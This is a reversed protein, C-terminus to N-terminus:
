GAAPPVSGALGFQRALFDTQATKAQNAVLGFGNHESPAGTRPWTTLTLWEPPAAHAQYRARLAEFFTSICALPVIQDAESHLALLPVPRWTELHEIPDIRNLQALAHAPPTRHGSYLMHLNGATCEVAACRFPHPDCLRRLAIMGGASMGGIALRELDFVDLLEPAALAEIVQDIEPLALELLDLVAAPDQLRPDSREGHGPLDIACAAFGARIWRLYRGNDLEKSVTRGHMWIVTPVPTSWDPHALLAPVGAPGLRAFRTQRALASPLQIARDAM